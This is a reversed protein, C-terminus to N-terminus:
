SHLVTIAACHNDRKVASTSSPRALRRILVDPDSDPGVKTDLAVGIRGDQKEKVTVFYQGDKRDCKYKRSIEIEFLKM